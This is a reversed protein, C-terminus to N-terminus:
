LRLADRREALKRQFLRGRCPPPKQAEQHPRGCARTYDVLVTVLDCQWRERHKALLLMPLKCRDGEMERDAASCPHDPRKPLELWWRAFTQCRRRAHVPRKRDSHPPAPRHQCLERDADLLRHLSLGLRGPAVRPWEQQGAGRLRERM